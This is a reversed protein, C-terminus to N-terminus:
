DDWFKYIDRYFCYIFDRESDCFPIKNYLKVFYIQSEYEPFNKEQNEVSLEIVYNIDAKRLYITDDTQIDFIKLVDLEKM